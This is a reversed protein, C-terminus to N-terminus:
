VYFTIESRGEMWIVQFTIDMNVWIEYNKILALIEIGILKVIVILM